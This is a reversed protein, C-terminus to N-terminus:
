SPVAVFRVRDGPQLRSGSVPDFMGLATRGIIQWGGPSAQPYVGTQAGAIGVSGAPVQQRPSARRPSAISADVEGLYAFGPLFGLMYVRYVRGAHRSVVDEARCGAFAAVDALDPGDGGGYVVPIDHVRPERHPMFESAQSLERARAKLRAGAAEIRPDGPEFHLTVSAMAPVIDLIRAGGLAPDHRLSAALAIARDNAAETLEAAFTVVIAADGLAAVSVSV